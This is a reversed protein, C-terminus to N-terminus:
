GGSGGNEAPPQHLSYILRFNAGWCRVGECGYMQSINWGVTRPRSRDSSGVKSNLAWWRTRCRGEVEATWGDWTRGDYRCKAVTM